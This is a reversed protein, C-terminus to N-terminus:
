PTQTRNRDVKYDKPNVGVKKKFLESFHRIDNYGVKRAVENVKYRRTTLLEKAQEIRVDLLYNTFTMGVVEKFISSLYASSIGIEHSVDTLSLPTHYRSHIYNKVQDIYQATAGGTLWNDAEIEKNCQYFSSSIGSIDSFVSSHGVMLSTKFGEVMALKLSDITSKVDDISRKDLSLLVYVKENVTGTAYRFSATPFHSSFLEKAANEIAFYYIDLTERDLKEDQLFSKSLEIGVLVLDKIPLTINLFHFQSEAEEATINPQEVLQTFFADQMLPLGQQLQRQELYNQRRLNREVELIDVLKRIVNQLDEVRVPKLLYEDVGYRIAKQMYAFDDYGTLIIFRIDTWKEKVTEILELGDMIPMNIDTIVIDPHYQAILALAKRGNSASGILECDLLHWDIITSMGEIIDKRDDVLLITNM